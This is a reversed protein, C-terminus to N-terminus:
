PPRSRSWVHPPTAQTRPSSPRGSSRAPRLAGGAARHMTAPRRRIPSRSGSKTPMPSWRRGSRRQPCAAPEVHLPTSSRRLGARDRRDRRHPRFVHGRDPRMPLAGRRPRPHHLRPERRDRPEDAQAPESGAGAGFRRAQLGTRRCRHHAAERQHRARGGRATAPRGVARASLPTRAGPRSRRAQALAAVEDAIREKPCIGHLRLPLSLSSEITFRPNFSSLPDQFIMQLDRRLPGWRRPPLTALDHGQYLIRGSTPQFAGLITKGLTTKGSGSEGVLGVIEGPAIDLDVSDLARLPRAAALASRPGFDLTLDRVRMAADPTSEPGLDSNMCCAGLHTAPASTSSAPTRRAANRWRRHAARWSAAVKPPAADARSARCNTSINTAGISRLPHRCCARPM